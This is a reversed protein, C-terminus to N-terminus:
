APKTRDGNGRDWMTFHEFAGEKRIIRRVSQSVAMNQLQEIIRDFGLSLMDQTM